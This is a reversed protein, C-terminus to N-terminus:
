ISLHALPPRIGLMKWCPSFADVSHGRRLIVLFYQLIGYTLIRFIGIGIFSFMCLRRDDSGSVYAVDKSVLPNFARPLNCSEHQNKDTPGTALSVSTSSANNVVPSTLCNGIKKRLLSMGHDNQRPIEPSTFCNPPDIEITRASRAPRDLSRPTIVSPDTDSVSVSGRWAPRETQITSNTTGTPM